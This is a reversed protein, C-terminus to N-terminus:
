GKLLKESWRHLLIATANAVNLSSKGGHLPITVRGLSSDALKLAEPSVGLEESGIFVTANDPFDFEDIPTGGLELAFFPGKISDLDTIEWDIRDICGMATRKARNHNPKTSDQSILIKSVGFCESTRFISGLNFPSRIDDLYLNIGLKIKKSIFNDVPATFDWESPEINLNAMILHKLSNISRQNIQGFALEKARQSLNVENGIELLISNYYSDSLKSGRKLINEIEELIILYKRLRTSEKLSRLKRLTIM